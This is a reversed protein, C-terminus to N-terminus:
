QKLNARAEAIVENIKDFNAVGVTIETGVIYTPTGQLKMKNFLIGNQKIREEIKELNEDIFKQLKVTDIGNNTAIQMLNDSNKPLSSNFLASQFQLYKANDFMSVATSFKTAEISDAGLMPLEIFILAVDPNQGIIKNNIETMQACFKCSYDYFEVVKIQANPNGIFTKILGLRFDELLIAMNEKILKNQDALNKNHFFNELTTAILEPNNTVFERMTKDDVTNQSNVATSNKLADVQSQLDMIEKHLVTVIEERLKDNEVENASENYKMYAFVLCLFFALILFYSLFIKYNM